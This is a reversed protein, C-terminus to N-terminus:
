AHASGESKREVYCDCDEAQQDDKGCATTAAPNEIAAWAWPPCEKWCSGLQWHVCDGCVRRM